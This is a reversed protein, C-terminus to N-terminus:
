MGMTAVAGGDVRYNAGNIFSARASCLFTIVSAVEDVQGRRKLALYPREEDLFSEIAEDKSVGMEDARKKMMGDTMPTEIFAPSVTNILVGHKAYNRSLGKTLNLVAAKATNYVAEEWYPQMANESAITVVRGWGKDAMAPMFARCCRVVSMFDTKWAHDWDDDKIEELPDGKAGTVGAACVLIDPMGFPHNECFYRLADVDKQDSLDAAQYAISSEFKSLQDAAKQLDDHKLDSLIVKCGEGLLQKATMFGIGSDAGTVLATKNEIQLDM